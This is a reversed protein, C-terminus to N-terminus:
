HLFSEVQSVSIALLSHFAVISWSAGLMASQPAVVTSPKRDQALVPTECTEYQTQLM